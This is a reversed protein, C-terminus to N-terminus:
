KGCVLAFEVHLPPAAGQCGWEQVYFTWEGRLSPKAAIAHRLISASFVLEEIGDHRCYWAPELVPEVTRTPPRRRFHFRCLLEEVTLGAGFPLGFSVEAGWHPEGDITMCTVQPDLAMVEHDLVGKVDRGSSATFTQGNLERAVTLSFRAPGAPVVIDDRSGALDGLRIVTAPTSPDTPRIALDVITGPPNDAADWFVRTNSGACAFDPLVTFSQVQPQVVELGRKRTFDTSFATLRGNATLESLTKRWAFLEGNPGNPDYMNEVDKMSLNNRQGWHVTAGLSIADSETDHLFPETGHIEGIGAIELSITRDWRQMAILAESKKMFRIAVYGGFGLRRAELDTIRRFLREVFVLINPDSAKFFVELSDGWPICSDGRYDHIDMVAYSIASFKRTDQDMGFAIGNMRRLLDFNDTEATWNSIAALTKGLPGRPLIGRLADLEMIAIEAAIVMGRAYFGAAPVLFGAVAAAVAWADRIAILDKILNSVAAHLPSDSECMANYFNGHAKLAYSNGARSTGDPGKGCREARGYFANPTLQSNVLPVLDRTTVFCTHQSKDDAQANPSLVVSVFRRNPSGNPPGFMQHNTNTLWTKVDNWTSEVREEYLAFQRVVRLVVSYIIGMRGAAVIVSWFVEPDRVVQIGPYLAKLKDDDVLPEGGDLTREMWYHNGDTGILHFAQVADAIPALNVDGGHTGTCLAGVITQGGAGGLTQMAWPGKFKEFGHEMALSGDKDDDGEDLRCYLEYIRTGAEVHYLYFQSHDPSRSPDFATVGQNLLFGKAANSLCAPIVDYLTDNMGAFLIAGGASDPDNTEIQFGDTVAAHSLAWHSGSARVERNENEAKKVLAVLATWDRGTPHYREVPQPAVPLSPDDHIRTWPEM